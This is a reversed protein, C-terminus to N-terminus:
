TEKSDDELIPPSVAPLTAFINMFEKLIANIPPSVAPETAELEKPVVHEVDVLPEYEATAYNRYVFFLPHKKSFAGEKTNLM